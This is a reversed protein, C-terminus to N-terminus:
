GYFATGVEDEQTGPAVRAVALFSRGLPIRTFLDATATLGTTANTVDVEPLASSVDVTEAVPAVEMRIKLTVTRDLEVRVGGIRVAKFGALSAEGDYRGPPLLAFRFEGREDTAVSRTGQLSPSKVTVTVRSAPQNASDASLGVIRGTTQAQAPACTAVTLIATPVIRIWVKM